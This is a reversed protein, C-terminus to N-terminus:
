NLSILTLTDWGSLDKNDDSQDIANAVKQKFAWCTERRLELIVSLENLTYKADRRNILYVMYFAKEIPFKLKHFLTDTTPSEDYNCNKCRRSFSIRGESYKNYECRKCKFGELWKLESLFRYCEFKDSFIKKFEEFDLGKMLVRARNVENINTQLKRNDQSLHKNMEVVQDNLQKLKFNNVNLLANKEALDKAMCEIEKTRDMVKAELKTNLETKIRNNEQLMEIKELNSQANQRRLSVIQSIISLSFLSVEIIIGGNFLYWNIVLNDFIVIDSAYVQVFSLFLSLFAINSLWLFQKKKLQTVLSALFPAGLLILSLPFSLSSPIPSFIEEYTFALCKFIIATWSLFRIMRYDGTNNILKSSFALTSSLLLLEAIRTKALNNISPVSPWLFQFGLGDRSLSYWITAVILFTFYVYLRDWLKIMLYIGFILVIFLFGYYLGLFLYENMAHAIFAENTRLHFSVQSAYSRKVKVYYTKTEGLRIDLLFNFNKHSINRSHFPLDYGMQRELYKGSSSPIFFSIEDIDFGWSEFYWSENHQSRRNELVLRLWIYNDFNGSVIKRHEIQHFLQQVEQNQVRYINLGGASDILYDMKLEVVYHDHDDTLIVPAQAKVSVVVVLLILYLYTKM